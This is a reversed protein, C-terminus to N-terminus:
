CDELQHLIDNLRKQNNIPALKEGFQHCYGVSDKWRKKRDVIKVLLGDTEYNYKCNKM